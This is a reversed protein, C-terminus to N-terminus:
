WIVDARRTETFGMLYSAHALTPENFLNVLLM